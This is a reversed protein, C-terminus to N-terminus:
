QDNNATKIMLLLDTHRQKADAVHRSGTFAIVKHYYVIASKYQMQKEYYRGIEYLRDAEILDFQALAKRAQEARKSDQYAVIVDEMADRASIINGLDQSGRNIESTSIAGIRFQAESAKPHNPYNDVLAQYADIAMATKEESEYIEAIAFQSLPAYDSHPANGIIKGHWKLLDSTQTKRPIVGLIMKKFTGHQGAKAIEYQHRIAESFAPNGTYNEIFLQFADFAKPPNEQAMYLVGLKFQSTSASSSLPYDRVIAKHISLAKRPNGQSERSLAIALQAKSQKEQQLLNESSPIRELDNKFLDLLKGAEASHLLILSTSSITLFTLIAKASCPMM